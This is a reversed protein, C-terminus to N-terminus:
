LLTAIIIGGLIALSLYELVVQRHLTGLSLHHLLGWVFYAATTLIIALPRLPHYRFILSATIGLALIIVLALYHILSKM